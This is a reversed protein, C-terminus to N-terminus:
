IHILSLGLEALIENYKADTSKVFVGNIRNFEREVRKRAGSLSLGIFKSYDEITIFDGNYFVRVSSRRNNCQDKNTAWICNEKSYGKLNDLREISENERPEGMDRFFCEFSSNWEDCVNIGRGGYDGYRRNNQNNCRNRMAVWIRYVRTGDM